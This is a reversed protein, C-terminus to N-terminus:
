KLIDIILVTTCRCQPHLPPYMVPGEPGIFPDDLGVGDPNMTPMAACTPCLRDDPTVIWRRRQDPPMLGEERAQEWVAAQGAHAARITETRAIVEARDTLLAKTKAAVREVVRDPNLGQDTLVRRLNIVAKAQQPLLGVLDRIRRAQTRPSGGIATADLVVDSIARATTRSVDRVLGVEYNRLFEVTRPNVVRFSFTADVQLRSGPIRPLRAAAAQGTETTLSVIAATFAGRLLRDMKGEVALTQLAGARDGARLLAEITALDATSKVSAVAELFARRVAPKFSDALALLWGYQRADRATRERQVKHLFTFRSLPDTM